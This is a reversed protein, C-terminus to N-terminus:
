KQKFRKGVAEIRKINRSAGVYVVRMLYFVVLLVLAAPLLMANVISTLILTGFLMLASRLVEITANPLLDDIIGIDMSFKNLIRGVPNTNFFQLKARTLQEFISNHLNSSSRILYYYAFINCFLSLIIVIITLGTYEYILVLRESNLLPIETSSSNLEGTYNLETAMELKRASFDNERDVWYALFFDGLRTIVEFVIYSGFLVFLLGCGGTNFYRRYTTFTVKGAAITEKELMPDEANNELSGINEESKESKVSTQRSIRRKRVTTTVVETEDEEPVDPEEIEELLDDVGLKQVTHYDGLAAVKGEKLILIEDAETLYKLQHTVLVVIKDHLFSKICEKFLLEGVHTDVASLPDDLLYIDAKKYIARALNIRAKQGGSLSRGREGVLTKDRHPLQAFDNELACVKCIKRYRKEDYVDGFLINERISGSFLWPEQACYSIRGEIEATGTKPPLETLLVNLLSSKGCGVSGIVALLKPEEIAFSINVLTDDSHEHNWTANVNKLVIRANIKSNDNKLQLPLVKLPTEEFDLFRKIRRLSVNVEAVGSLGMTFLYTFSTKLVNYIATVQFATQATIPNGLLAYGVLSIFIAVRTGVTEIAYTIARLYKTARIAQLEKSRVHAVLKAFSKEWVYMKIVQIGSIIENMLRVREDTRLATRLRLVM